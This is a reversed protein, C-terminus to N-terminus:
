GIRRLYKFCQFSSDSKLGPSPALVACDFVCSECKKQIGREKFERKFYTDQRYESGRKSVPIFPNKM